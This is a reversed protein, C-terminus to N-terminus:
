ANGLVSAAGHENAMEREVDDYIRGIAKDTLLRQMKFYAAVTMRLDVLANHFEGGEARELGLMNCLNELKLPQTPDLIGIEQLTSGLVMTDVRHYYCGDFVEKYPTGGLIRQLCQRDFFTNHGGYKPMNNKDPRVCGPLFTGNARKMDTGGYFWSNIRTFYEVRFHNFTLGPDSLNLKNIEMAKPTTLFPPQRIQTYWEGIIKTGETAIMAFSLPSHSWPEVGGTEFDQWLIPRAM